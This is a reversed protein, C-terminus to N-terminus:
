GVCHLQHDHCKPHGWRRGRQLRWGVWLRRVILGATNNTITSNLITLNTTGGNVTFSTIGGAGGDSHNGSVTSNVLIFKGTFTTEGRTEIAGARVTATNGSITSNTITITSNKAWIAGGTKATNGAIVVSDLSLVAGGSILIAGGRDTLATANGLASGGTMTLGSVDVDSNALIVFIHPAGNADITLQDAGPGVISLSNGIALQSGLNITRPTSFLDLDFTIREQGRFSEPFISSVTQFVGSSVSPKGCHCIATVTIETTKMWRPPCWSRRTM